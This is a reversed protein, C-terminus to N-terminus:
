SGGAWIEGGSAEIRELIQDLILARNIECRPSGHFTGKASSLRSQYHCDGSCHWKGFCGQCWDVKEVTRGRLRALIEFNFEYAKSATDYRGFIYEESFEVGEDCVEFCASINGRPTLNFGEGCSQCFRNSIRNLDAASYALEAGHERAAIRARRFAHIFKEADIQLSRDKGRGVRYVPEAQIRKPRAHQLIYVVNEALSDVAHSTVTMRVAYPFDARDFDAITRMVIPSSPNGSALPRQLDQIAPSGDLSFNVETMNGLIWRCQRESFVGNTTLSAHVALGNEGAVRKAYLLSRTLVTWHTTPEGGGHFGVTVSKTGKRLANRVIFDIGRKATAYDMRMAPASGASAYCYICRLSCGNTLFLTADTPSFETSASCGEPEFPSAPLPPHCRLFELAMRDEPNQSELNGRSVRGLYKVVPEDCLFAIRRLPSYVVYRGSFPIAFIDGNIAATM